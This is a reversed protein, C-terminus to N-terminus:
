DKGGCRRFRSVSILLWIGAAALLPASYVGPAPRALYFSAAVHLLGNGIMIVGFAYSLPVMWAAGRFAWRSLGLLLVVALALGGLWVEFSFTPFPAFVSRARLSEVMPNWLSLFDNIAEDAVHAALALTLALWAVGWLKAAKQVESNM